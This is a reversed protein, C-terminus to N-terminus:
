PTIPPYCLKEGSTFKWQEADFYEAFALPYDNNKAHNVINEFWKVYEVDPGKALSVYSDYERIFDDATILARRPYPRENSTSGYPCEFPLGDHSRECHLNNRMLVKPYIMWRWSGGSPSLGSFLRLQEYGRTHLEHVIMVIEYASCEEIMYKIYKQGRYIMLLFRALM